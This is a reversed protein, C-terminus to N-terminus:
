RFDRLTFEFCAGEDNYVRVEGRCLEVIKSVTALGLGTGGKPGKYFPDFIAELNESPIGPGNDRVLYRHIIEAESNLRSVTIVPNESSNYKVANAVLNMFLQYIHTPNAAIKGLDADIKLEVGKEDIETGLQAAVRHVVDSVNVQEVTGPVTGIQSLSIIDTALGSADSVGELITVVMERALQLDKERPVRKLIRDLSEAVISIASLPAMIDHTVTRAFIELERNTRALEEAALKRSTVNRGVVLVSTVTGAKNRLVTSSWEIPVLTGDKRLLPAELEAVGQDLAMQFAEIVRPVDEEMCFNIMPKFLIDEDTYGTLRKIHENYRLVRGELDLVVFLDRMANITLEVFDREAQLKEHIRAARLAVAALDSFGSVVRADDDTFGGPKNALGILGAVKGELVLPAFLVNELRVHGEPMYQMWKSSGFDNDYIVEGTHYAEARLGRIPMPLSSDVTCPLGGSDLFLVENEAGDPSLLAVYGSNAGTLEKCAQFVARAVPEFELTELAVRTSELLGTLIREKRRAEM